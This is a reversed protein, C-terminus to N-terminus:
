RGKADGEGKEDHDTQAKEGSRDDGEHQASEALLGLRAIQDRLAAAYISHGVASPHSDTATVWLTARRAEPSGGLEPNAAFFEDVYPQVSVLHFGRKKSVKRLLRKTSGKATGVLIVVPIERPATLEELRKMARRFGNHGLMHEYQAHVKRRDIQSLDHLNGEILGQEESGLIEFRRRLLDVLFSRDLATPSQPREMFLPVGFDNNVFHIVVLDPDFYQARHEYLAVEMATNYGPVAFNLTQVGDLQTELIRLYTEEASVGWGFMVSDGLGIIRRTGQPKVLEVERERMGASNTILPRHQFTARLNPRLEYVVDAVASPQILEAMTVKGEITEEPQTRASELKEALSLDGPDTALAILRLGGEFILAVFSAGCLLLM